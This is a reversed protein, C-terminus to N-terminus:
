FAFFFQLMSQPLYELGTWCRELPLLPLVSTESIQVLCLVPSSTKEKKEKKEEKREWQEVLKVPSSSSRFSLDESSWLLLCSSLHSAFQNLMLLNHCLPWLFLLWIRAISSHDHRWSASSPFSSLFSLRPNCIGGTRGYNSVLRRSMFFSKVSRKVFKVLVFMLSGSLSM